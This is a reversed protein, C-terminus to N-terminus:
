GVCYIDIFLIILVNSLILIRILWNTKSYFYGISLAAFPYLPLIYWSLKTQVLTIIGFIFIIGFFISFYFFKKLLRDRYIQIMSIILFLGSFFLKPNFLLEFYYFFSNSHGELAVSARNLLHYGLYESIFEGGHILVMILHWPIIVILFPVLLFYLDKWSKNNRIQFLIIIALPLIALPGKTLFALGAIIGSLVLSKKSWSKWIFVFSLLILFIFLSDLDASRFNHTSFVNENVSFLQRSSILVLGSIIGASFGIKKYGLGFVLMITGFGSIASILRFFALDMGFIRVVVSTLFYWVPPKEFFPEGDLTMSFVDGTESLDTAVIVNTAEDWRELKHAGLNAFCFFLSIGVFLAFVLIKFIKQKNKLITM